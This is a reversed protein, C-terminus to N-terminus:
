CIFHINFFIHINFTLVHVSLDTVGGCIYLISVLIPFVCLCGPRCEHFIFMNCCFVNITTGATGAGVVRGLRTRTEVAVGMVKAQKKGRPEIAALLVTETEWAVPVICGISNREKWPKAENDM